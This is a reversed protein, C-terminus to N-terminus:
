VVYVLWFVGEGKVEREKHGTEPDRFMGNYYMKWFNRESLQLQITNMLSHLAKGYSFAGCIHSRTTRIAECKFGEARHQQLVQALLKNRIYNAGLGARRVVSPGTMMCQQPYQNDAIGSKWKGQM